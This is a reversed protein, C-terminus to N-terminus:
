GTALELYAARRPPSLALVDPETWGYARALIHVDYLLALARSEVEAWLLAAVDLAASTTATCAPCTIRLTMAGSPAAEEMAAEVAAAVEEPIVDEEGTPVCRSLLLLRGAAPDEGRLMRLDRSDPLRFAVRAGAVKAYLTEGPARWPTEPLADLGLPVHLRADCGGCRTYAEVIEGAMRRLADSLLSDRSGVDVSEAEERSLGTVAALLTV